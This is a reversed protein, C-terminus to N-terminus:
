EWNWESVWETRNRTYDDDNTPNISDIGETVWKLWGGRKIEPIIIIFEIINIVKRQLSM